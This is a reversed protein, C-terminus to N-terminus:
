CRVPEPRPKYVWKRMSANVGGVEANEAEAKRRVHGHWKLRRQRMERAVKM